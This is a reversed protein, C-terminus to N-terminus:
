EFNLLHTFNKSKVKFHITRFKLNRSNLHVSRSITGLLIGAM